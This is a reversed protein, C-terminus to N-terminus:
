GDRHQLLEQKWRSGQWKGHGWLPKVRVEKGGALAVMQPGQRKGATKSGPWRSSLGPEM